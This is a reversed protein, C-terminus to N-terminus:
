VLRLEPYSNGIGLPLSGGLPLSVGVGVCLATNSCSGIDKVVKTPAIDQRVLGDPKGVLTLRKM